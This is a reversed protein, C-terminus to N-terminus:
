RGFSTPIAPQQATWVHHPEWGSVLDPWELAACRAIADQNNHAHHPCSQVWGGGRKHVFVTWPNGAAPPTLGDIIRLRQRALCWSPHTGPKAHVLGALLVSASSRAFSFALGAELGHHEWSVACDWGPSVADLKTQLHACFAACADDVARAAEHIARTAATRQLANHHSSVPAQSLAQTDRLCALTPHDPFSARNPVNQAKGSPLVVSAIRTFPLLAKDHAAEVDQSFRAFSAGLTDYHQDLSLM